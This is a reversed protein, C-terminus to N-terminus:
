VGFKGVYIGLWIFYLVLAFIIFSYICLKWPFIKQLDSNNLNNPSFWVTWKKTKNELIISECAEPSKYIMNTFDTTGAINKGDIKFIFNATIYYRDSSKEKIEWEIEIPDTTKTLSYYRFLQYGASGGYWLFSLFFISLFTLWVHNKYTM